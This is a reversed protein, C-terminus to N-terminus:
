IRHFIWHQIYSNCDKHPRQKDIDTSTVVSKAAELMIRFNDEGISTSSDLMFVVDLNEGSCKRKFVAELKYEVEELNEIDFRHDKDGAIEDLEKLQSVVVGIAFIEIGERRAQKAEPITQLSNMYSVGDTIIVGVNSINVRDGYNKNFSRTRMTKIADATNTDGYVYEINEIASLLEEKSDYSNLYFEVRVRTSYTIVAVRTNGSDIDARSIFNRTAALIVKFKAETLSTSSDLVFALDMDTRTCVPCLTKYISEMKQELEDFDDIFYRNQESGTIEDLEETDIDTKEDTVVVAINPIDPRDGQLETLMENRTLKLADSLNTQGYTYKISSIAKIIDNQTAFTNIHFVSPQLINQLLLGSVFVITYLKYSWLDVYTTTKKVCVADWSSHVIRVLMWYQAYNNWSSLVMQLLIKLHKSFYPTEPLLHRLSGLAYIFTNDEKTLTAEPVTRRTGKNARGDTILVGVNRINPRDGNEETFAERLARLAAATNTNGYNQPIDDIADLVTKNTTYDNLHFESKARTNFTYVGIRSTGGTIDIQSVIYNLFIKMNQFDSHGMRSSSDLIFIFRYKQVRVIGGGFVDDVIFSFRNTSNFQSVEFSRYRSFQNLTTRTFIGIEGLTLQQFHPM